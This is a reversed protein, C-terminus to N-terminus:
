YSQSEDMKKVSRQPLKKVIKRSDEEDSSDTQNLNSNDQNNGEGHM